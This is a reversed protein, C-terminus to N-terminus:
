LIASTFTGMSLVRVSKYYYLVFEDFEHEDFPEFRPKACRNTVIM